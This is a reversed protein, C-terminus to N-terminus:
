NMVMLTKQEVPSPNMRNLEQYAFSIWQIDTGSMVSGRKTAQEPKSQQSEAVPAPSSLRSTVIKSLEPQRSVANEPLSPLIPSSPAPSPKNPASAPTVLPMSTIIGTPKSFPAAVPKLPPSVIPPPSVPAMMSYRNSNPRGIVAPITSNYAIPGRSGTMAAAPPQPVSVSPTGNSSGTSSTSIYSIRSVAPAQPEHGSNHLSVRRQSDRLQDHLSPALSGYSSEILNLEAAHISGSSGSAVSMRRQHAQQISQHQEATLQNLISYGSESQESFRVSKRSKEDATAAASLPLLGPITITSDQQKAEVMTDASSNSIPRMASRKKGISGRESLNDDDNNNDNNEGDELRRERRNRFYRVGLIILLVAFVISAIIIAVLAGTSLGSDSAGGDSWKMTRTDLLRIQSDVSGAANRGGIVAMIAEDVMFAAHWARALSADNMEGAKKWTVPFNVKKTVFASTDVLGIDGFYGNGDAGGFILHQKSNPVSVVSSGFRASLQDGQNSVSIFQKRAVDYDFCDNSAGAGGRLGYCTLFNSSTHPIISAFWRDLRFVNVPDKPDTSSNAGTATSLIRRRWIMTNVDLVYQTNSNDFTKNAFMGGSVVVLGNHFSSSHGFRPEPAFETEIAQMTYTKLDLISVLHRTDVQVQPLGKAESKGGIEGKGGFLILIHTDNLKHASHGILNFASETNVRAADNVRFTFRTGTHNIFLMSSFQPNRLLEVAVPDLLPTSEGQKAKAEAARVDTVWKDLNMTGGIVVLDVPSVRVIQHGYMYPLSPLTYFTANTWGLLTAFLLFVGLMLSPQRSSTCPPDKIRYM